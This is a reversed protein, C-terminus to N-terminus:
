SRRASRAAISGAVWVGLAVVLGLVVVTGTALALTALALEAVTGLMSFMSM